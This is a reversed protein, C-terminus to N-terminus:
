FPIVSQLSAQFIIIPRGPKESVEPAQKGALINSVANTASGANMVIMADELVITNRTIKAIKGIYHYTVTFIYYKEGIRLDGTLGDLINDVSSKEDKM